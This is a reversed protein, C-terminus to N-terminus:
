WIQSKVTILSNEASANDSSLNLYPICM